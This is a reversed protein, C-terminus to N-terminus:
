LSIIGSYVSDVSVDTMNRNAVIRAQHRGDHKVTYILHIKNQKNGPSRKRRGMNIFVKYEQLSELEPQTCTQQYKNGNAKDLELAHKYNRPIEIGYM